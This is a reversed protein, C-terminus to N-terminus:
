SLLLPTRTRLIREAENSVTRVIDAAPRIEM